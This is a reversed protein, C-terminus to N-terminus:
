EHEGGLQCTHADPEYSCWARCLPCRQQVRHGNCDPCEDQDGEDGGDDVRGRGECQPCTREDQLLIDAASQVASVVDRVTQPRAGTATVEFAVDRDSHSQFRLRLLKELVNVSLLSLDGGVDVADVDGPRHITITAIAMSEPLPVDVVLQGKAPAVVEGSKAEVAPQTAWGDVHLVVHVDDGPPRSSRVSVEVQQGPYVKINRLLAGLGRSAEALEAPEDLVIQTGVMVRELMLGEFHEGASEADARGHAKAGFWFSLFEMAYESVLMLAVLTGAKVTASVEQTVRKM